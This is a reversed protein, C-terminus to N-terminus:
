TNHCTCLIMLRPQNMYDIANAHYTCVQIYSLWRLGTLFCVFLPINDMEMLFGM